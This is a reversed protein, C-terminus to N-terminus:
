GADDPSGASADQSQLVDAFSLGFKAMLELRGNVRFHAFIRRLHAKVTGVAVDLERAIRENHYGKLVLRFVESERHTLGRVRDSNAREPLASVATVQAPQEM